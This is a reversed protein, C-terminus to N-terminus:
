QSLNNQKLVALFMGSANDVVSELSHQFGDSAWRGAMNLAGGVLAASILTPDFAFTTADETQRLLLPRGLVMLLDGFSNLTTLSLSSMERSVSLAENVLILASAPREQIFSFFATLAARTFLVSDEAPVKQIAALIRDRIDDVLKLYVAKFLAETNEFSEYFYRETLGAKACLGRVSTQHFGQLGFLEIGAEILKVRREAVRVENSVGRYKRGATAPMVASDNNM